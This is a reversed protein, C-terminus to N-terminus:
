KKGSRWAEVWAVVRSVNGEMDEVTNSPVEHVIEKAYSDHAEELCVQPNPFLYLPACPSALPPVLRMPPQVLSTPPLWAWAWACVWVWVWAICTCVGAHNRV